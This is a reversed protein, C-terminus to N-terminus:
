LGGHLLHELLDFRVVEIGSIAFTEGFVRDFASFGQTVFHGQSWLLHAGLRVM